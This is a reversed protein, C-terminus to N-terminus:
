DMIHLQGRNNDVTIYVDYWVFCSGPQGKVGEKLWICISVIGLVKKWQKREGKECEIM